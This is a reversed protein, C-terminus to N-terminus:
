ARTKAINAAVRAAVLKRILRDPLPHDPTFRLTGKSTRWPAIDDGFDDLVSAGMPYLACHNKHACYSIVPGNQGIGPMSYTIIEEADPAASRVVERVHRLLQAFPQPVKELYHDIRKSAENAM